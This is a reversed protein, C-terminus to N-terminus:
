LERIALRAMEIQNDAVWGLEGAVFGCSELAFNALVFRGRRQEATGRSRLNVRAQDLLGAGQQDGTSGQSELQAVIRRRM